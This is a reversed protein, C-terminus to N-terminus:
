SLALSISLPSVMVNKGQSEPIAKFLNFTFANNTKVLQLSKPTMVIDVPDPEPTLNHSCGALTLVLILLITNTKTKM